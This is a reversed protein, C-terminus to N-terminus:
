LAPQTTSSSSPTYLFSEVLSVERLLTKKRGFRDEAQIEIINYGPQLVVYESFDGEQTMSVSRDNITLETVYRVRGEVSILPKTYTAYVEPSTIDVSPGSLYPLANKYIYGLIFVVVLVGAGTLVIKRTQERGKM